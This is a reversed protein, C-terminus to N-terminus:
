RALASIPYPGALPYGWCGARAGSFAASLPKDRGLDGAGADREAGADAAHPAMICKLSSLAEQWPPEFRCVIASLFDPCHRSLVFSSLLGSLIQNASRVLSTSIASIGCHCTVPSQNSTQLQSMAQGHMNPCG